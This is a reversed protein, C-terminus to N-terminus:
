WKPLIKQNPERVHLGCKDCIKQQSISNKNAVPLPERCNGGSEKCFFPFTWLNEYVASIIEVISSLFFNFGSKTPTTGWIKEGIEALFLPPYFGFIMYMITNGNSSLKM